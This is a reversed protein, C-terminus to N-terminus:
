KWHRGSLKRAQITAKGGDLSTRSSDVQVYDADPRQFYRESGRQQRVIALPEGTVGTFGGSFLVEYRGGAIRWLADGGVM